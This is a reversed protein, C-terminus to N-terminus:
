CPQSPVVVKQESVKPEADLTTTIVVLEAGPWLGTLPPPPQSEYRYRERYIENGVFSVTVEYRRFASGDSPYTFEATYGAGPAPCTFTLGVSAPLTTNTSPTLNEAVETGVGGAIEPLYRLLILLAGLALLARGIGPKKKARSRSSSKPRTAPPNSRKPAPPTPRRPGTTRGRRASPAPAARGTTTVHSPLPLPVPEELEGALRALWGVIADAHLEPADIIVGCLADLTVAKTAGLDTVPRPLTADTFCLITRVPVDLHGALRTSIFEITDVEKRIPRRGQWLTGSGDTYEGTYAKSDVVFVGTPGIVLHDVNAKSGPVHLDHLVVYSPPLSALCDATRREGDAGKAWNAAEARYREALAELRAAEAAASSGARNAPDPGNPDEEGM